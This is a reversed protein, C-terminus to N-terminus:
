TTALARSCATPRQSVVLPRQKRPRQQVRSGGHAVMAHHPKRRHANSGVDAQTMPLTVSVASRYSCETSDCASGALLFAALNSRRKWSACCGDLIM